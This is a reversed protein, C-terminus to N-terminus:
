VTLRYKSPRFVLLSVTHYHKGRHTYELAFERVITFVGKKAGREFHEDIFRIAHRGNDSDFLENPKIPIRYYSERMNSFCIFLSVM